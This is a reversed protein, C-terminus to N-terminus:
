CSCSSAGFRGPVGDFLGHAWGNPTIAPACVYRVIEVDSTSAIIHGLSFSPAGFITGIHHNSISTATAAFSPVFFFLLFDCPKDLLDESEIEPIPQSGTVKSSKNYLSNIM